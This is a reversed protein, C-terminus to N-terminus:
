TEHKTKKKEAEALCKDNQPPFHYGIQNMVINNYCNIRGYDLSRVFWLPQQKQQDPAKDILWGQHGHSGFVVRGRSSHPAVKGPVKSAKSITVVQSTRRSTFFVVHSYQQLKLATTTKLPSIKSNQSNKKWFYIKKKMTFCTNVNFLLLGSKCFQFNFFVCQAM